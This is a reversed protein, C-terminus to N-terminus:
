REEPTQSVLTAKSPPVAPLCPAGCPIQRRLRQVSAACKGAGEALVPKADARLRLLFLTQNRSAGAWPRMNVSRRGADQAFLIVLRRSFMQHQLMQHRCNASRSSECRSCLYAPLAACAAVKSASLSSACLTEGCHSCPMLGLKMTEFDPSGLRGSSCSRMRNHPAGAVSHREALVQLAQGTVGGTNARQVVFAAPRCRVDHLVGLPCKHWTLLEEPVRALKAVQSVM